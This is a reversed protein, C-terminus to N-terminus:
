KAVAHVGVESGEQAAVCLLDFVYRAHSRFCIVQFTEPDALWLAAPVQAMRTRRFM